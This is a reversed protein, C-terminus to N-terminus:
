PPSSPPAHQAAKTAACPRTRPSHSLSLLEAWLEGLSHNCALDVTEAQRLVGRPSPDHLIRRLGWRRFGICGHNRLGTNGDLKGFGRRQNCLTHDWGRWRGCWLTNAEVVKALPMTAPGDSCLGRNSEETSRGCDARGRPTFAVHTDRKRARSPGSLRSGSARAQMWPCRGFRFTARVLVGFACGRGTASRLWTQLEIAAFNRITLVLITISLVLVKTGANRSNLSCAELKVHLGRRLRRYYCPVNVAHRRDGTELLSKTITPWAAKLAKLGVGAAFGSAHSNLRGWPGGSGVQPARPGRATTPRGPADAPDPSPAPKVRGALPSRLCGSTRGARQERGRVM